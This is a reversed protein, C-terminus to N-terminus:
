TLHRSQSCGTTQFTDPSVSQSCVSDVSDVTSYVVFFSRVFFELQVSAFSHKVSLLDEWDNWISM